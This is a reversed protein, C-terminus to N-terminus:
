RRRGRALLVGGARSRLGGAAGDLRRYLGAFPGPPSPPFHVATRMELVELGAEELGRRLEEATFFRGRYYSRDTFPRRLRRTLEWVSRRNLVGLIATGGTRLVRAIERLAVERNEVFELCNVCLVLDFSGDQFPLSQVKGVVSAGDAGKERARARARRAMELSCDVGLPWAEPPFLGEATIGPGCGIDAARTFTKAEIWDRLVERVSSMYARGLSSLCWREYETPPFPSDRTEM